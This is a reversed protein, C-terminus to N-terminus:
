VLNKHENGVKVWCGLLFVRLWFELFEFYLEFYFEFRFRTSSRIRIANEHLIERM